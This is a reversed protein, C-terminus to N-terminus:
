QGNKIEKKDELKWDTKHLNEVIIEIKNKKSSSNPLPVFDIGHDGGLKKFPHCKLIRKIGLDFGRVLGHKQLAEIFYESCTPLFRCRTGLLPSILFQYIKIIFIITKTM